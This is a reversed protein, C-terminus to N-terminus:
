TGSFTQCAKKAASEKADSESNSWMGRFIRGGVVVSYRYQDDLFEQSFRALYWGREVCLDKLRREQTGTM